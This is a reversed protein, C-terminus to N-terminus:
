MKVQQNVGSVKQSKGAQRGVLKQATAIKM